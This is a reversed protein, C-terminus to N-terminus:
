WYSSVVDATQLFTQIELMIRKVKNRKKKTQTLFIKFLQSDKLLIISMLCFIVQDVQLSRIIEGVNASPWTKTPILFFRPM